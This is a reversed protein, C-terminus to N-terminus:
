EWNDIQGGIDIAVKEPNDSLTITISHVMGSKFIVTSEFLYSVQGCIVEVLPVRNNLRQPVVIAEFKDAAVKRARISKAAEHNDKVVDGTSLDIYSLTVTNHIYVAADEPLNGEYDDGKVLKVEVKGMKHQFALPVSATRTVASAKVWLFDSAEYSGMGEVGGNQTQDEAVRFPLADVSSVEAKPYYGYIDFRGEDWYVKPDLSWSTGNFSLTLNSGWNGGIQLPTPTDGQYRTIYIGLQDGAEFGSATAKVAAGPFIPTLVMEDSFSDGMPSKACSFVLAWATLILLTKKM